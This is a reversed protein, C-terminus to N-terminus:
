LIKTYFKQVHEAIPVYVKTNDAGADMHIGLWNYYPTGLAAGVM